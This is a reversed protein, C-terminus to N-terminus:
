PKGAAAQPPAERTKLPPTQRPQEQMLYAQYFGQYQYITSYSYSLEEIVILTNSKQSILSDQLLLQYCEDDPVRERM